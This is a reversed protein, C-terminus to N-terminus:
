ETFCNCERHIQYRYTLVTFIIFKLLLRTNLNPRVPLSCTSGFYGANESKIAITTKAIQGHAPPPFARAMLPLKGAAFGDQFFPQAFVAFFRLRCCQRSRPLTHQMNQYYKQSACAGVFHMDYIVIYINM